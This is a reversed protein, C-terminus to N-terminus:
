PRMGESVLTFAGPAAKPLLPLLVLSASDCYQQPNTPLPMCGGVMDEGVGHESGCVSLGLVAADCIRTKM